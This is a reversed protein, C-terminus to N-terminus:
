DGPEYITTTDVTKEPSPLNDGDYPSYIFVGAAAYSETYIQTTTAGTIPVIVGAKLFAEDESSSTKATSTVKTNATDIDLICSDFVFMDNAYGNVGQWAESYAPNDRIIDVDKVIQYMEIDIPENTDAYTFSTTIQIKDCAKIIGYETPFDNLGTDLGVWITEDLLTIFSIYGDAKKTSDYPASVTLSDVSMVANIARGNITMVNKFYLKLPNSCVFGSYSMMPISFVHRETGYVAPGVSLRGNIGEGWEHKDYTSWNLKVESVDRLVDLSSDPIKNVASGYVDNFKYNPLLGAMLMLIMAIALIRQCKNRKLKNLLTKM